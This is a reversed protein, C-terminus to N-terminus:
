PRLFTLRFLYDNGSFQQYIQRYKEAMGPNFFSARYFLAALNAAEGKWNLTEDKAPFHTPDGIYPMLFQFAGDLSGKRAGTTYCNIGLQQGLQCLDMFNGLNAVSYHFSTVRALELPQRGDAEIQPELRRVPLEQLIQRAKEIEGTFLLYRTFQVDFATSHNNAAQREKIGLPSTELWQVYAEFWKHVQNWMDDPVQGNQRLIELADVVYVFGYGDIIGEARGKESTVGPVTQGYDMNPNMRTEPNIFWTRILSIAKTAYAEKQSYHYALTLRTVGDVMEALTKRDYKEIEPNTKGDRRVYPLGNPTDPNPWWYRGLSMYDHKDGSAPAMPKGVITPDSKQLWKDADALLKTYSESYTPNGKEIEKRIDSLIKEDWMRPQAQVSPGSIWLLLLCGLTQLTMKTHKM